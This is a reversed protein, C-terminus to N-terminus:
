GGARRARGARPGRAPPTTVFTGIPRSSVFKSPLLSEIPVAGPLGNGPVVVRAGPGYDAILERCMGCPSVVEGGSRVAAIARVPLDGAAAAAAIACAEACLSVRGVDAEVHVAAHIRGGRGLAAAGLRHRRPHHRRALIARAAALLKRDARSLPAPRPM